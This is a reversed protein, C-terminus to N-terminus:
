VTVLWLTYLFFTWHEWTVAHTLFVGWAGLPRTRAHGFVPSLPVLAGGKWTITHVSPRVRVMWRPYTGISGVVLSCVSCVYAGEVRVFSSVDVDTRLRAERETM